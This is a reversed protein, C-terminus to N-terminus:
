AIIGNFGPYSFEKGIILKGYAEVPKHTIEPFTVRRV